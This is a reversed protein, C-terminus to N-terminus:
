GPPMTRRATYGVDGYLLRKVPRFERLIYLAEHLPDALASDYVLRTGIRSRFMRRTFESLLSRELTFRHSFFKSPPENLRVGALSDAFLGVRRAVVFHRVTWPDIGMIEACARSGSGIDTAAVLLNMAVAKGAMPGSEDLFYTGDFLALRPRLLMNVAVITHAFDPHYRLRMPSPICGFQNKFGLSLGTMAHVKPVPMTIFFDTEEILLRPLEVTVERGDVEQRCIVAPLKTLNEVHIGYRTMLDYLGHAAFAEEAKYSHYGGDSEGITIDVGYDRLALVAAEIFAPTTTVGPTPDPWTLNPKIFISRKGRLLDRIGLWELATRIREVLTQQTLHGIWVAPPTVAEAGADAHLLDRASAARLPASRRARAKEYYKASILFPYWFHMLVAYALGPAGDLFGLQIIYRLVFLLVPRVFMPVRHWIAERLWRSRKLEVYESATASALRRKGAGTLLEEVEWEAMMNAKTIWATLGRKNEHIMDHRLTQVKGRIALYERGGADIVRALHKRFLRVEPMPYNAGFRLWRGLFYFRRKIYFGDVGEPHRDFLERIEELLEPTLREDADLHLVWDHRIALNDLGWNRQAAFNEFQHLHVNSTYQRAIEQTRDTSFSDVVFVEDAFGAVSELCPGIDRESNYSLVLASLPM